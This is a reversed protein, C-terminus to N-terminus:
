PQESPVAQKLFASDVTIILDFQWLGTASVSVNGTAVQKVAPQEQFIKLQEAVDKASKATGNLLLQNNAASLGLDSFYVNPHTFKELWEFLLSATVHRDLLTKINAIQSYFEVLRAQDSAPVEQSFKQIQDNLKRVEARLYPQYGYVLGFYAFLTILLITSSFMLLRGSWGPTRVPERGLREVVKEPLAM